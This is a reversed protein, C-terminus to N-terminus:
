DRTGCISIFYLLTIELIGTMVIQDLIKNQGIANVKSLQM